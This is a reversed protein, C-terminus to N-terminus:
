SAQKEETRSRKSADDGENDEDSAKRKRNGNTESETPPTVTTSASTSGPFIGRQVSLEIEEIEQPSKANAVMQKIQEKQQATFSTAFSEQATKGQGPIFTNAEEKQVDQELAAGAASKALRQAKDRESQTIKVYDLVRLTSIHHIM